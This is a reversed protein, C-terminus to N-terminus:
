CAIKIRKESVDTTKTNNIQVNKMANLTDATCHISGVCLVNLSM